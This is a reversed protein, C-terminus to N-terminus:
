LNLENIAYKIIESHDFALEPLKNIPFWEAKAADDGAKTLINREVFAYYVVSVTRGRPDRDPESFTHLQKLNQTRIGTEETLEREAAKETTEDEDVVGGPLAWKGKFPEQARQILLLEIDNEEKKLIICDVTLAPRPYEYCFQMKKTM